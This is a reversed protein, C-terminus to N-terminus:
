IILYFDTCNGMFVATSFLLSENDIDNLLKKRWIWMDDPKLWFWDFYWSESSCESQKKTLNYLVYNDAGYEM